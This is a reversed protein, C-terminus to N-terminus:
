APAVAPEAALCSTVCNVLEMYEAPKCFVEDFISLDRGMFRDGSTGTFAFIFMMPHHARLRTALEIGDMDPMDFDTVVARYSRQECRILARTGGDAVDHEIGAHRFLSSLCARVTPDDDVILVAM